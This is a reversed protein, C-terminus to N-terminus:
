SSRVGRWRISELVTHTLFLFFLLFWFFFNFDRLSLVGVRFDGFHDHISMWRVLDQWVSPLLNAPADIFWFVMLTGYGAFASVVQNKTVSSVWLTAALMAASMLALGVYGTLFMGPENDGYYAMVFQFLYTPALMFLLFTYAGMFKGLLIGGNSVPSTLLLEMTGRRKEESLLGMAIIPIIFLLMLSTVDLFNGCVMAPVNLLNGAAGFEQARADANRGEAAWFNLISVFFVSEALWFIATLAYAVPSVFYSHLERKCIPWAGRFSRM